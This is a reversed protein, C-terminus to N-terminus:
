VFEYFSHGELIMPLITKIKKGKEDIGTHSTDNIPRPFWM